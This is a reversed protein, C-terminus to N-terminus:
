GFEINSIGATKPRYTGEGRRSGPRSAHPQWQGRPVPESGMDRPKPLAVGAAPGTSVDPREARPSWLTPGIAASSPRWSSAYGDPAMRLPAERAELKWIEAQPLTAYPPVLAAAPPPPPIAPSSSSSPAEPILPTPVQQPPMSLPGTFEDCGYPPTVLSVGRPTVPRSSPEPLAHLLADQASADSAKGRASALGAAGKGDRIAAAAAAAAAFNRDVSNIPAADASRVAKAGFMPALSVDLTAYPAQKTQQVHWKREQSVSLGDVPRPM